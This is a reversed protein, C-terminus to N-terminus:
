VFFQFYIGDCMWNACDGVDNIRGSGSGVDILM